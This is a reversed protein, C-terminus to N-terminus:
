YIQTTLASYGTARGCVCLGKSFVEVLQLTAGTSTNTGLEASTNRRASNGEAVPPRVMTHVMCKVWLTGRDGRVTSRSEKKYM